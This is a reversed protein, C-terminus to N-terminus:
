TRVELSRVRYLASEPTTIMKGQDLPLDLFGTIKATTAEPDYVVDLYDLYLVDFTEQWKRLWNQVYILHHGLHRVRIEYHSDSLDMMIDQSLGIERVDRLMFIVRYSRSRPLDFLLPSVIKVARGEAEEIWERSRGVHKVASHEFYGKPNHRDPPREDDVFLDMGGAKLMAMMM